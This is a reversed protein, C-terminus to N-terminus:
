EGMLIMPKKEPALWKLIRLMQKESIAVCGSTPEYPEHNLHFFIASGKGKEVPHTNYEIVMCYKYYDSKLLLREFSKASTPGRVWRNYDESEPDDIWKDDTTSQMFPMTTEVGKGYTFLTGLAFLGSPTKGDGERKLGPAAFGNKGIGAPIPKGVPNWSDEIREYCQLATKSGTSEPYVVLLQKVGTDIQASYSDILRIATKNAVQGHPTCAGFNLLFGFGLIVLFPFFNQKM